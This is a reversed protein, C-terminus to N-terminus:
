LEWLEWLLIEVYYTKKKVVLSSLILVFTDVSEDQVLLQVMWVFEAGMVDASVGALVTQCWDGNLGRLEVDATV